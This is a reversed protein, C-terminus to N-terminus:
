FGTKIEENLVVVTKVTTKVSREPQIAVSLIVILTFGGGVAFNKDTTGLGAQKPSSINNVVIVEM